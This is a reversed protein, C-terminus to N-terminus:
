PHVSCARYWHIDFQCCKTGNNAIKLVIQYWITLCVSIAMKPLKLPACQRCGFNAINLVIEAMIPLKKVSNAIRSM